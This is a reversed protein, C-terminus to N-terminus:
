SLAQPLNGVQFKEGGQIVVSEVVRVAAAAVSGGSQLPGLLTVVLQACSVVLLCIMHM